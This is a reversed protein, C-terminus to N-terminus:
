FAGLHATYLWWGALGIAALAALWLLMKLVFKGVKFALYLAFLAAVVIGVAVPKAVTLTALFVLNM